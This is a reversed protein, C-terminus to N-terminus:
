RASVEAIDALDCVLEALLEFRACRRRDYFTGQEVYAVAGKELTFRGKAGAQRAAAFKERIEAILAARFFDPQNTQVFWADDFGRDGVTIERAGFLGLVKTGFGQPQITFSLGGSMAPRVRMASWVQQSKGSGTTYNFFELPKGRRHGDARSRGFWGRGPAFTLGLRAALARLNERARRQTLYGLWCAGGVLGAFVAVLIIVVAVDGNM